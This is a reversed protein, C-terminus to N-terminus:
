DLDLYDDIRVQWVFEDVHSVLIMAGEYQDLAQAIVPIHRFNIHNTPEDLILLADSLCQHVTQNFDLTSFDQRYYGVRVSSAMFMKPATGNAVSELLTSKGIGNPGSLLLHRDKGLSVEVTRPVPTHNKIVNVEKISIIVGGIDEQMPITFERITKDERRVDVMSEELEEAKERM